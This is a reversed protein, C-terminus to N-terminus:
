IPNVWTANEVVWADLRDARLAAFLDEAEPRPVIYSYAGITEPDSPVQLGTLRSPSIGRLGYMLDDIAVGNTDITLAEGIARIFRDFTVPNGTLNKAQAQDYLARLFQQQHRMRGYDGDPLSKRQRVYDLAYLAEFHQCGPEYVMPTSERNRHEGDPGDYPLLFRGNKDYGIHHSETRVDVCLDVGGLLDVAKKFGDFDVVAAGDFRIGLLNTLTQSVLQVGGSGGGGYQFAGNIKEYSGTFHTAEFKPIHVRLDRPISLLYARDMTAPIHLVIITDSRQGLDPDWARADSGLLLYNLPGFVDSHRAEDTTRAEPALLKDKRVATDYRHALVRETGIVGGALLVLVSGFVVLLKAWLPDRGPLRERQRRQRKRLRPRAPQPGSPEPSDPEAAPPEVHPEAPLSEAAPRDDAPRDEAPWDHPVDAAWDDVPPEEVPPPQDGAPRDAPPEPLVPWTGTSGSL